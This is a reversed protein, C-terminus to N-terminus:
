ILVLPSGLSRSGVSQWFLTDSFVLDFAVTSALCYCGQLKTIDPPLTRSRAKWGAPDTIPVGQKGGPLMLATAVMWHCPSARGGWATDMPCYCPVELEEWGPLYGCLGRPHSWLGQGGSYCRDGIKLLQSVWFLCLQIKVLSSSILLENFM